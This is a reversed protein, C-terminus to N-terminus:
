VQEFIRILLVYIYVKEYKDKGTFVMIVPPNMYDQYQQNVQTKVTHLCHISDFWFEVYEPVYVYQQIQLKVVYIM